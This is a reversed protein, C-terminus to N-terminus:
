VKNINIKRYSILEDEPLNSLAAYIDDFTDGLLEPLDPHNNLYKFINEKLNSLEKIRNKTNESIFTNYIKEVTEKKIEKNNAIVILTNIYNLEYPSIGLEEEPDWNNSYNSYGKRIKLKEFIIEQLSKM